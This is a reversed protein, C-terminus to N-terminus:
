TILSVNASSKYRKIRAVAAILPLLFYVFRFNHFDLDIMAYAFWLGFIIVIIKKQKSEYVSSYIRHMFFLMLYIWAFLGVVGTEALLTLYTSQAKIFIYDNFYDPIDKSVADIWINKYNELGVGFFLHTKWAKIAVKKMLYYSSYTVEMKSVVECMHPSGYWGFYQTQNEIKYDKNCNSQLKFESVHFITVVQILLVIFLMPLIVIGLWIKYNKFQCFLFLLTALFTVIGVRGLTLLSCFLILIITLFWIRKEIKDKGLIVIFSFFLLYAGFIKSTPTMPGILRVIYGIYPFDGRVQALPNSEGTCLALIYFGLSAIMYIITTYILVKFCLVVISKNYLVLSFFIMLGTLYLYKTILIPNNLFSLGGGSVMCASLFAILPYLLKLDFRFDVLSIDKKIIFSNVLIWIAMVPFLLDVIQVTGLKGPFIPHIPNQLMLPQLTIYVVALWTGLNRILNLNM